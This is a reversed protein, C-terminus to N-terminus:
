QKIIDLINDLLEILQEHQDYLEHYRCMSMHSCEDCMYPFASYDTM